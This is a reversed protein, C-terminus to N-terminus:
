LLTLFESCLTLSSHYPWFSILQSYYPLASLCTALTFNLTLFYTGLQQTGFEWYSKRPLCVRMVHLFLWSWHLHYALLSGSSALDLLCDFVCSKLIKSVLHDFMKYVGLNIYPLNPHWPIWLVSCFLCFYLGITSFWIKPISPSPLAGPPCIWLIVNETQSDPIKTSDLVRGLPTQDLDM